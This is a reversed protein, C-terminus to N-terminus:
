FDGASCNRQEILTSNLLSKSLQRMTLIAAADDDSSLHFDDHKYVTQSRTKVDSHQSPPDSSTQVLSPFKLKIKAIWRKELATINRFM